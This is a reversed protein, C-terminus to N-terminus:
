SLGGPVVLGSEYAVVVLQARDRAGLKMLLRSVHTKATLPSVVLRDAIEGNSSGPASSRSCRASARAHATWPRRRRSRASPRARRLGRDPAPDRRPALLADGEAVVRIAALLDPAELDKLLFGSAGARLAGFVYEDLEFTTLVVVRTDASARRLHDGRDGRARGDAAHPRGHARHRARALARAALAEEGDSAEGCVELDDEAELLAAFGARVLAQDDALSSVSLDVAGGPPARPRAPRAVRWGGDPLRGAEVRGGLAEAREAMGRLGNGTGRRQGGRDGPAVGDNRVDIEVRRARRHRRPGGGVLRRRPAPRQDAGGARDSLGRRRGALDREGRPRRGRHRRAGRRRASPAALDPVGSLVRTPHVPAVAHEDRLLGLTARLDDLAAGSVRKIETLATEAQGPRKHLVHAAVGAQVNIAVMAHAVVDHVERAIRLREDALRRESDDRARREREVERQAATREITRRSRVADGLVLAILLVGLRTVADYSLLGRDSFLTMVAVTVALVCGATLLTRLRDGYLAVSYIAVASVAVVTWGPKLTAMCAFVGAVVLALM